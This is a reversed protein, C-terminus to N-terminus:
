VRERESKLIIDKGDNVVDTILSVTHQRISNYYRKPYFMDGRRIGTFMLKNGRTFWSKEVVTKKTDGAYITSLQKDYHIFAGSYFKAKVVGSNPTLITIYHKDKNKDLVTGIINFLQHKEFNYERGNKTRKEVSVVVPQEPIDNFDSIGYKESDLDALEHKTYYFCLSDMEWKSINGQCYKDWKDYAFEDYQADNFAKLSSDLTLWEKIPTTQTNYWKTFEKKNICLEGKIYCYEVNEKLHKACENEFYVKAEDDLRYFNKEVEFFKNFVYSKFSYLRKFDIYKQEKPLVDLRLISKINQMTLKSKPEVMKKTLYIIYDKMCQERSIHRELKDFAGGKILNIMAQTNIDPNKRCFDLLSFYPKNQLIQHVVDDGVKNIGKLGFVIQNGREDPAFEFEAKNIDPLGIHVNHSQMDGIATAIKGYNTSKNSTVNSDASANITLCACNWYLINYYYALNTEQLGILSYPLTHNRSFSYGLQPKICYNWVYNLMQPRTGAQKGKDFFLQRTNEIIDKKKKAIGKRLKNAEVIDFNAIHKDMSLEMVDEQEISCGFNHLLYKELLKIEDDTLDNDKMEQYWLSTDNKFAVFRDIPTSEGDGMLRMVSSALSLQKLETPKIKKVAQSGVLTDFQFLDTIQGDGVMKWMEPTDYDIVDPSLYKNYTARLSGQWEIKHYKILLDLTKRIKDLAEVTLFDVKLAGCYDSDEMSWCTTEIGNPTKMMSNQLLYDDNFLYFGSAHSSIGSVLGEIELITDLLMDFQNVLNIFEKAPPQGDETGNLCENISWTKGRQSPITSAIERAIDVDIGLGRCATLVASKSAETKFTIINLCHASGFMKKMEQFIIPRQSSQSDIDVDPLEPREAVLHRWYPLNWKMPNVQTIGILYCIYYGTVSGRAVGVLSNGKDDDWMIDVILRVLSYYASMRQQLKKSINWLQKLEINIRALVTPSIEQQRQIFGQEILYLLFTDQEYPSNAFKNIYEYKDYYDKFYHMLEYTPLPREPVIVDQHLDYSKVMDAIKVTNAFAKNVINSDVYDMRELMEEPTKMYTNEYFDGTEREEDKSLLFAEHLKQKDKTLYHVDNTITLNFNHEQAFKIALKNFMIQENSLGAQLEIYFNEEGFLERCWNAFNLAQSNNGQLMHQPFLGGLCATMGILHGKNQSVVEELDSYFTPVRTMRKYVYERKWATTSLKRLQYHGIEDKALLIFHYFNNTNQYESEDILYIENGLILKFDPNNERISKMHKLAEIHSSLSEHDTIAVGNLNYEIAKDILKDTRVTSDLMRANSGRATHCHLEAFGVM